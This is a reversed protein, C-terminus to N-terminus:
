GNILQSPMKTTHHNCTHIRPKVERNYQLDCPECLSTYNKGLVHIPVNRFNRGAAKGDTELYVTRESTQRAPHSFPIANTSSISWQGTPNTPTTKNSKITPHTFPLGIPITGPLCHRSSTVVQSVQKISTVPTMGTQKNFFFLWLFFLIIEDGCKSLQVKSKLLGEHISGATKQGITASCDWSLLTHVETEM